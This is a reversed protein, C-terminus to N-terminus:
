ACAKGAGAGCAGCPPQQNGTEKDLGNRRRRRMRAECAEPRSWGEARKKLHSRLVALWAAHPMDRPPTTAVIDLYQDLARLVEAQSQRNESREAGSEADREADAGGGALPPPGKKLGENYADYLLEATAEDADKAVAYRVNALDFRKGGRGHTQGLSHAQGLLVDIPAAGPLAGGEQEAQETAGGDAASGLSRPTKGINGVRLRRGNKDVVAAPPNVSGTEVLQTKIASVQAESLGCSSAITRQTLEGQKFEESLLLKQCLAARDKREFFVGHGKNVRAAHLWVEVLSKGEYIRAKRSPIECKLAAADRHYGDAILLLAFGPVRFLDLAPPSKGEKLWATYDEVRKQELQQRVQGVPSHDIEETSVDVEPPETPKGTASTSPTLAAPRPPPRLARPLTPPNM